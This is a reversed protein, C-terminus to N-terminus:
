AARRKLPVGEYVTPYRLKVGLAEKMRRNVLRRSEGMFSLMPAPIAHAAEKRSVRAPKPLGLREAVLPAFVLGLTPLGVVVDCRMSQALQTMATALARVVEFSAQNSILSAVARGEAGAVERIPLVLYRGDPLRVPYGFRHPASLSFETQASLEADSYLHQWFNTTARVSAIPESSSAPHKM